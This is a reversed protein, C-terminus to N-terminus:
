SKSFPTSNQFGEGVGRGQLARDTNEELLKLTKPKLNLDEIWNSNTKTCPSLYLDLKVRQNMTM